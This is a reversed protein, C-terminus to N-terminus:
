GPDGPLVPVDREGGREGRRAERDSGLRTSRLRGSQSGVSLRDQEPPDVGQQLQFGACPVGVAPVYGDAEVQRLAL